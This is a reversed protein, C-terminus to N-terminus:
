SLLARRYRFDSLEQKAEPLVRSQAPNKMGQVYRWYGECGGRLMSNQVVFLVRVNLQM